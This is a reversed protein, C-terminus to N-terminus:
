LLPAFLRLFLQGFRLPLSRGSMFKETVDRCKEQTELFDKEVDAVAPCGIMVCGDEFHHYLSRFDLNVTGCTAIEGDAVCIKAHCFGPTYEFIKVGDSILRHYYSRTLNYVLKKDPIGPTIIRVDVGRMAALGLARSMEDTIILYPTMFYVYRDAKSIINLYIDEGITKKDTPDDTYFIVYGEAGAVSRSNKLFVGPDPDGEGSEAANWMELFAATMATVADGEIRVGTDKWHGASFGINFYRDALNYGGTFGIRGDVVTIKRHDRNNLFLNFFPMIPNFVRCKIGKSNLRAAFDSDVFAISGVDDYFLRVDVGRKVKDLLIEEIEAWSSADEVAFYELFIFKEASLLAEKQAEFGDAAAAYYTVSTGRCVPYGKQREMYDSICRFAPHEAALGEAAAPDGTLYGSLKEDLAEFRKRIKKTTGSLGTFLYLSIGVVPLVLILIIWPTKLASTKNRSYIGLVLFVALLRLGVNILEAYVGSIGILMLTLTVAAELLVAVSFFVLRLVGNRSEPRDTARERRHPAGSSGATTKKKM